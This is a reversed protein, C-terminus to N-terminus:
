KYFFPVRGPCLRFKKPIPFKRRAKHRLGPEVVLHGLWLYVALQGPDPAPLFDADQEIARHVQLMTSQQSSEVAGPQAALFGQIQFDGVDVALSHDDVVACALTLSLHQLLLGCM